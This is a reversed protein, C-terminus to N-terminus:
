AHEGAANRDAFARGDFLPATTLARSLLDPGANAGTLLLVVRKGALEARHQWAGGLGAAAGPEVLVHGWEALSHVSALLDRDEVLWCDDVHAILADLALKAPVRCVLCDALTSVPREIMHRAHYSEFMAPSGASQVAVVKAHPQRCKLGIATGAALSGSGMPALVLDVNDLTSAIELGITGAGEIVAVEEGDDVFIGGTARAHARAREKAEDLDHGGIHLKAGFLQIMVRKVIESRDPVFIEAPIGLWAAALAVGQGHNGTSSTVASAVARHSERVCLLTNLAGRLKFSAVPGTTEVKLWVDADLARSLAASRYLPTPRIYTELRALAREIGRASPEQPSAGDAARTTKNQM